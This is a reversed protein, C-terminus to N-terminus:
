PSLIHFFASQEPRGCHPPQGRTKKRQTIGRMQAAAVPLPSSVGAVSGRRSITVASFAITADRHTPRCCVYRSCQSDCRRAQWPYEVENHQLRPLPRTAPSLRSLMRAYQLLAKFDAPLSIQIPSTCDTGSTGTGPAAGSEGDV